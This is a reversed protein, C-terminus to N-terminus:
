FLINLGILISVGLFSFISLNFLLIILGNQFGFLGLYYSPSEKIIIIPRSCLMCFLLLKMAVVSSIVGNKLFDSIIGMGAYTHGMYSYLAM